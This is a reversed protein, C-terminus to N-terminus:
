FKPCRFKFTSQESNLETYERVVEQFAADGGSETERMEDNLKSIRLRFSLSLCYNFM